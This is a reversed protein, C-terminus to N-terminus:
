LETIEVVKFHGASEILNILLENNVNGVLELEVKQGSLDIDVDKTESLNTLANNVKSMCGMCNMGDIQILKKM